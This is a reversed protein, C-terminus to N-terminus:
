ERCEEDPEQGDAPGSRNLRKVPVMVPLAFLPNMPSFFLQPLSLAAMAVVAALSLLPTALQFFRPFSAAVVPVVVVVLFRRNKFPLIEAL